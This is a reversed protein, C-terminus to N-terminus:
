QFFYFFKRGGGPSSLATAKSIDIYIDIQISIYDYLVVLTSMTNRYLYKTQGTGGIYEIHIM